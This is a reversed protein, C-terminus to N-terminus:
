TGALGARELVIEALKRHLGLPPTVRFTVGPHCAACEAALRPIDELAHKGPSLMYPHVLVETAGDRVCREFGAALDPQAQTMHAIEVALGPRLQRVLAALQELGANAEPQRSGHDVILLAARPM